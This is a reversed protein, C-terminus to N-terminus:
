RIRDALISRWLAYGAANLHLGDPSFLEGRPEGAADLMPTFVDVYEFGSGNAIFARILENAQQVRPIFQRRRPSPKISIYTIRTSPLTERIRAVLVQLSALVSVPSRGEAIDNDGAYVVVMSPRYRIVLRDVYRAIDDIRSGGLGRRIVAPRAGFQTELDSWLRISSSGVFVVAGPPPPQAHDAADYTAFAASWRSEKAPATSLSEVQASCPAWLTWSLLAIIRLACM